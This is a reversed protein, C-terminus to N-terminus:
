VWLSDWLDCVKLLMFKIESVSIGMRSNARLLDTLNLLVHVSTHKPHGTHSRHAAPVAPRFPVVSLHNYHHWQSNIITDQAIPSASFTPSISLNQYFQFLFSALLDQNCYLLGPSQLQSAAQITISNGPIPTVRHPHFKSMSRNTKNM